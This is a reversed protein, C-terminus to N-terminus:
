EIYGNSAIGRGASHSPADCAPVVCDPIMAPVSSGNRAMTMIQGTRRVIGVGWQAFEITRMASMNPVLVCPCGSTASSIVTASSDPTLTAVDGWILLQNDSRLAAYVGGQAFIRVVDNAVSSPITMSKGWAYLAGSNTLALSIDSGAAV